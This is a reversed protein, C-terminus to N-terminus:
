NKDGYYFESVTNFGWVFAALLFLEGCFVNGAAEFVLAAVLALVTILAYLHMRM